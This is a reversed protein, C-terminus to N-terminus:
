GANPRVAGAPLHSRVALRVRRAADVARAADDRTLRLWDHPYRIEVAYPTIEELEQADAVVQLDSPLMALLEVLDHTKPFDVWKLALLAKLYKEVCQQAHFCVTDYPCNEGLKLTHEATILDNEAKEVWRQVVELLEPPESM